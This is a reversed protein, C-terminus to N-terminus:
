FRQMLSSSAAWAVQSLRELRLTMGAKRLPVGLRRPQVRDSKLVYKELRVNVKFDRVQVNESGSLAIPSIRYFMMDVSCGDYLSCVLADKLLALIGNLGCGTSVIGSVEWSSCRRFIALTRMSTASRFRRSTGGDWRHGVTFETRAYLSLRTFGVTPLTVM